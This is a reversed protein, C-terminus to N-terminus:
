QNKPKEEELNVEEVSGRDTDFHDVYVDIKKNRNVEEVERSLTTEVPNEIIRIWPMGSKDSRLNAIVYLYFRSKLNTEGATKWENLTVSAKRKNLGSSKLEILRDPKKEEPHITLIDFGPYERRIGTENLDSFVQDVLDYKECLEDVKEPTSVDFVFTGDLDSASNQLRSREMKRVIIKALSEVDNKYNPHLESKRDGNNAAKSSQQNSGSPGDASLEDSIRQGEMSTVDGIVLEEPEYLPHKKTGRVHDKEEGENRQKNLTEKSIEEQPTLDLSQANPASVSQHDDKGELIRTKQNLYDDSTKAGMHDLQNRITSHKQSSLINSISEFRKINLFECIASALNQNMDEEDKANNLFPLPRSGKDGELLVYSDSITEEYMGDNADLTYKIELDDIVSVKNIFRRLGREDQKIADQSTKEVELRSLIFKGKNRLTNRIEDTKEINEDEQVVSQEVREHLATMVTFKGIRAATEETLCFVPVSFAPLRALLQSSRVFYCDEIRSFQFEGNIETLVQLDSFDYNQWKDDSDPFGGGPTLAPFLEGSYRYKAAISSTFDGLNKPDKEGYIESIAKYINRIDKPKANDQKLKNRIGLSECFTRAPREADSNTHIAPVFYTWDETKQDFDAFKERTTDTPLVAEDSHLQGLRTPCWASNKL